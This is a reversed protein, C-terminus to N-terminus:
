LSWLEAWKGAGRGGSEAWAVGVTVVAIIKKYNEKLQFSWVHALCFCQANNILKHPEFSM